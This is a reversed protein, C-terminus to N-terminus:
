KNIHDVLRLIQLVEISVKEKFIDNNNNDLGNSFDSFVLKPFEPEHKM